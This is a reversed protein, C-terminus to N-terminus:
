SAAQTRMAGTTLARYIASPPMTRLIYPDPARPVRADHCVACTERYVAEGRENFPKVAYQPDGPLWAKDDDTAPEAGAKPAPDVAAGALVVVLLSGCLTSALTRATTPM